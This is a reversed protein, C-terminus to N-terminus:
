GGLGWYYCFALSASEVGQPGRRQKGAPRGTLDLSRLNLDNPLLSFGEKWAVMQERLYFM